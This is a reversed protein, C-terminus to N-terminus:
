LVLILILLLLLLILHNTRLHVIRLGAVIERRRSRRRRTRTDSSLILVRCVRGVLALGWGEVGELLVLDEDM